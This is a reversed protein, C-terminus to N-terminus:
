RPNRIIASISTGKDPSFTIAFNLTVTNEIVVMSTRLCLSNRLLAAYLLLTTYHTTDISFICGGFHISEGHDWPFLCLTTTLWRVSFSKFTMVLRHVTPPLGQGAAM